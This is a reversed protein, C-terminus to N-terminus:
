SQEGLLTHLFFKVAVIATNRSGQLRKGSVGQDISKIVSRVDQDESGSTSQTSGFTLFSNM